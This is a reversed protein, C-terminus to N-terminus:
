PSGCCIRNPEPPSALRWLPGRRAAGDRRVLYIRNPNGPQLEHDFCIGGLSCSFSEGGDESIYFGSGMTEEHRSGSSVTIRDRNSPDIRISNARRNIDGCRVWSNGGDVSKWM